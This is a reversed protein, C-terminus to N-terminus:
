QKKNWSGYEGCCSMLGPVNEEHSFSANDSFIRIHSTLVSSHGEAPSTCIKIVPRLTADSSNHVTYAYPAHGEGAPGCEITGREKKM